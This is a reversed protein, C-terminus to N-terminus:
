RVLMLVEEGVRMIGELCGVLKKFLRSDVVIGDFCSLGWYRGKFKSQDLM